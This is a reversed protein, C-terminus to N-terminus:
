ESSDDLKPGRQLHSIKVKLDSPAGAVPGM